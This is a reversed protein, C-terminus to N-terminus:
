TPTLVFIRFKINFTFFTGLLWLFIIKTGFSFPCALIM